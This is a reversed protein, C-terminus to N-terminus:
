VRIVDYFVGTRKIGVCDARNGPYEMSLNSILQLVATEKWWLKSAETEDTVCSHRRLLCLDDLTKSSSHLCCLPIVVASDFARM